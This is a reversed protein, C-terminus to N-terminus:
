QLRLGQESYEMWLMRLAEAIFVEFMEEAWHGREAIGRWDYGSMAVAFLARATLPRRRELRSLAAHMPRHYYGDADMESPQNEVFRRFTDTHARTGLKSGGTQEPPIGEGARGMWVESKHIASPIEADWEESFWRLLAPLSKPMVGKGMRRTLSAEHEAAHPAELERRRQTKTPTTM